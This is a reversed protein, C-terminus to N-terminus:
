QIFREVQLLNQGTWTGEMRVYDGARLRGYRDRVTSSANYGLAATFTANGARVEFTGRTRDIYGVTGELRQLNTSTTTGTGTRDQVSQTVTIQNTYLQNNNVQQVTMSVLDGRELASVSYEQQGYLVRTNNDYGIWGTQNDSTRIQIQRNNTDVSTVEGAVTSNGTPANLVGGLIEGLNGASSCGTAAIVMLAPLARRLIVRM